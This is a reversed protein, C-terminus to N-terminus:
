LHNVTSFHASFADNQKWRWEPIVSSSWNRHLGRFFYSQSTFGEIAYLFGKGFPWHEIFIVCSHILPLKAVWELSKGTQYWLSPVPFFVSRSNRLFYIFRGTIEPELTIDQKRPLFFTRETIYCSFRSKLECCFQPARSAAINTRFNQVKLLVLSIGKQSPFTTTDEWRDAIM